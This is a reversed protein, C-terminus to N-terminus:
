KYLSFFLQGTIKWSGIYSKKKQCIYIIKILLIILSNHKCEKCQPKSKTSWFFFLSPSQQGLPGELPKDWCKTCQFSEHSKGFFFLFTEHTMLYKQLFPNHSANWLKSKCSMYNYNCNNNEKAISVARTFNSTELSM